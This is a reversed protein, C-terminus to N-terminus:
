DWINTAVYEPFIPNYWVMVEDDSGVPMYKDSDMVYPNYAFSKSCSSTYDRGFASFKVYYIVTLNDYEPMISMNRNEDYSTVFYPNPTIQLGMVVKGSTPIFPCFLVFLSLAFAIIVGAIILMIQVSKKLNGSTIKSIFLLLCFAAVFVVINVGIMSHATDLYDRDRKEIFEHESKAMEADEIALQGELDREVYVNILINNGNVESEYYEVTIYDGERLTNTNGVTDAYEIDTGSFVSFFRESGELDQNVGEINVLVDLSIKGEQDGSIQVGESFHDITGKAVKIEPNTGSDNELSQKVNELEEFSCLDCEKLDYEQYEKPQYSPKRYKWAKGIWVFLDTGLLLVLLVVIYVIRWKPKKDNRNTV